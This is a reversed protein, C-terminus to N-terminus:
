AAGSTLCLRVDDNAYVTSRGPPCLGAAPAAQHTGENLDDDLTRMVAGEESQYGRYVVPGPSVVSGRDDVQVIHATYGGLRRYLTRYPHDTYVTDTRESPLITGITSVAALETETYSFRVQRDDFVPSDITSKEAVAMSGPFALAFVLLVATAVAVGSNRSLRSLGIVGVIILPAYLFALWRGPLLARIDFMPLGLTVISMVVIVGLYSLTMESSRNAEVLALSGVVAIFMLLLLGLVNLYPIAWELAGAGGGGGGNATAGSLFGVGTALERGISATMRSLFSVNGYPTNAWSFATVALVLAFVGVITLRASEDHRGSGFKIVLQALAGVGLLTLVAVTSLQHTFVVALAFFSALGISRADHGIFSARTLAYLLGLFFVLGLSQPILHISWRIFQDALAAMAAAALAWRTAVFYRATSYILLISLAMVTGLTLFLTNRLGGGMLQDGYAVFLHYFPATSYYEGALPELTGTAAIGATWVPIHTWVDVGIFGAVSYLASFRVVVALGIIQLLIVWPVLAEDDTFFVQLLVITGLLGALLHFGLTRGGTVRVLLLLGALGTVVIAPALTAVGAPIVPVTLREVGSRYGFLYLACGGALVLPITDIFVNSALLRLPFLLAAVLLGLGALRVDIRKAPISALFRYNVGM